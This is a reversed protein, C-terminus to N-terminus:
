QVYPRPRQCSENELRDATEESNNELENREHDANVLRPRLEHAFRQCKGRADTDRKGNDAFPPYQKPCRDAEDEDYLATDRDSLQRVSFLDHLHGLLYVIAVLSGRSRRRDSRRSKAATANTKARIM